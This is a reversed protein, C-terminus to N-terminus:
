TFRSHELLSKLLVHQTIATWRNTFACGYAEVESERGRNEQSSFSNLRFKRKFEHLWPLTPRFQSLSMDCDEQLEVAKQLLRKDTWDAITECSRTIWRYLIDELEYQHSTGSLWVTEQKVLKEHRRRKLLKTVTTRDIGFIDAIEGQRLLPHEKHFDVIEQKVDATLTTRPKRPTQTLLDKYSVSRVNTIALKMEKPIGNHKRKIGAGSLKHQLLNDNKRNLYDKVQLKAFNLLGQNHSDIQLPQSLGLGNESTTLLHLQPFGYEFPKVDVEETEM